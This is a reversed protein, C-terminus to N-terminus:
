RTFTATAPTSSLGTSDDVARVEISYHGAALPYSVDVTCLGNSVAPIGLDLTFSIMDSNFVQLVYRAVNRYHDASPAFQLQLRTVPPTLVPPIV